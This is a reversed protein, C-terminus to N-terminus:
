CLPRLTASVAAPKHRHSRQFSLNIISLPSVINFLPMDAATAANHGAGAAASYGGKSV